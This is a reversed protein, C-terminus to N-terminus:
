YAMYVLEYLAPDKEFTVQDFRVLQFISDVWLELGPFLPFEFRARPVSLRVPSIRDDKALAPLDNAAIPTTVIL